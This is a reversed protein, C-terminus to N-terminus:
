PYLQEPLNALGGGQLQQGGTYQIGGLHQNQLFSNDGGVGGQLYRSQASMGWPDRSGFQEWVTRQQGPPVPTGQQGSAVGM